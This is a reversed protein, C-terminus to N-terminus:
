WSSCSDHNGFLMRSVQNCYVQELNNAMKCFEHHLLLTTDTRPSSSSSQSDWSNRCPEHHLSATHVHPIHWSHSSGLERRCQERHLFAIREHPISSSHEFDSRINYLAHNLCAICHSPSNCSHALYCRNKDSACNSSFRHKQHNCSIL